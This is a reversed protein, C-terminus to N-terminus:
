SIRRVELTVKEVGNEDDETYQVIKFQMRKDLLEALVTPLWARMSKIEEKTHGETDIPGIIQIGNIKTYNVFPTNGSNLPTVTGRSPAHGRSPAPSPAAAYPSKSVTRYGNVGPFTYKGLKIAYLTSYFVSKKLRFGLITNLDEYEIGPKAQLTKDLKTREEPTIEGLSWERTVMESEKTPTSESMVVPPVPDPAPPTVPPPQSKRHEERVKQEAEKQMEKLLQGHAKGGVVLSIAGSKQLRTYVEDFIHRDVQHSRSWTDLFHDYTGDPNKKFYDSVRQKYESQFRWLDPEHATAIM